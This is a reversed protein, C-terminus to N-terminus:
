DSYGPVLARRDGDDTEVEDPDLWTSVWVM